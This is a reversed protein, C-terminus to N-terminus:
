AAKLGVKFALSFYAYAHPKHNQEFKWEKGEEFPPQKASGAAEGLGLYGDHSELRFGYSQGKHLHLGPIQFSIWQQNCSKNLEMNASALSPGWSEQHPDYSHVTLLLRGPNTVISSFVEISDLDGETPAVFTQGMMIEKHDDKRHGLWSTANNTLQQVVAKSQSSYSHTNM